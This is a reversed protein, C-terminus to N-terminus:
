KREIKLDLGDVTNEVLELEFDARGRLARIKVEEGDDKEFEYHEGLEETLQDSATRAAENESTNNEIEIQVITPEAGLPSFKLSILGDEDARGNFHLRWKDSPSAEATAALTLFLILSAVLIVRLTNVPNITYLIKERLISKVFLPGPFDGPWQQM